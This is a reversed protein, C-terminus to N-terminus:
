EASTVPPYTWVRDGNELSLALLTPEGLVGVVVTTDDLMIPDSLVDGGTENFWRQLGDERGLAYVRDDRSGVILLDGAVLPTARIAETAVQRQWRPTFSAAELAYVFGSLDGFYLVGDALTPGGWVWNRTEFARLIEGDRAAVAFMQHAFSGVYLVGDAYVPTGAVAGELDTQWLEEGTALDLAHLYHDLSTVYVVEDVILPATWVGQSTAFFWEQQGTRQNLAMVGGSGLGVIVKGQGVALGGIISSTADANVWIEQGNDRDLAYVKYDYGGVYVVDETLAPKAYFQQNQQRDGPRPFEWRPTGVENFRIVRDFHAMVLGNADASLGAWSGAAVAPGCGAALLTLSLFLFLGPRRRAAKWGSSLRQQLSTLIKM